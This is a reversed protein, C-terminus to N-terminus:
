VNNVSTRSIADVDKAIEAMTTRRYGYIRFRAEAADVIQRRVAVGEPLPNVPTM